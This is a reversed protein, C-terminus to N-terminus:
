SRQKPCTTYKLNSNVKLLKHNLNETYKDHKSINIWCAGAKVMSEKLIHDINSKRESPSQGKLKNEWDTSQLLDNLDKNNLNKTSRVFKNAKCESPPSKDLDCILLNHDSVSNDTIASVGGYPANTFVLDIINSKRTPVTVIQDLLFTEATDFLISAKQRKQMIESDESDRGTSIIPFLEEDDEVWDVIGPPLNFDGCIVKELNIESLYNTVSDMLDKFKAYKTDGPAYINVICINLSDLCVGVAEVFGNSFKYINSHAIYTSFVIM